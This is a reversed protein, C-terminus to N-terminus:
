PTGEPGIILAKIIDVRTEDVRLFISSDWAVPLNTTLVALQIGLTLASSRHHYM